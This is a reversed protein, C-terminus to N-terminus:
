SGLRYKVMLLIFGTMFISFIIISVITKVIFDQFDQYNDDM